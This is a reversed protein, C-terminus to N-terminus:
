FSKCSGGNEIVIGANSTLKVLTLNKYESLFIMIQTVFHPVQYTRRHLFLVTKEDYLSLLSITGHSHHSSICSVQEECFVYDCAKRFIIKKKRFVLFKNKVFFM